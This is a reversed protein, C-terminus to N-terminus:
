QLLSLVQQPLGKAQALISMGAQMMIQNRTLETTEKAFDADQIRSRAASLNESTASLNSVTSQMRNQIAGLDARSADIGALAGDTIDIAAQAGAATTIDIADVTQKTSTQLEDAAGAFIGGRSDSVSSAVSFSTVESKYEVTGGVVTSDQNTGTANTLTLANGAGGTVDMTTTGSASSSFNEIDIDAGASDTLTIEDGVINLTAVVGTKSTQDNISTVLNSLDGTTVNASLSTGNLSFEVVGDNTVADITATTSATATVGSEDSVQNVLSAIDKATSNVDISVSGTGTGTMTLVQASVFNGATADSMAVSSTLTASTDAAVTFISGAGTAVDSEILYGSDLQITIDGVQVASDTGAAETVTSGAFSMTSAVNAVAAATTTQAAGASAGDDTLQAVSVTTTGGDGTVIDFTSDLLDAGDAAFATFAIATDNTGHVLTATAGNDTITITGGLVADAATKFNDVTTAADGAVSAFTFSNGDISMTINESVTSSITVDVDAPNGGGVTATSATVIGASAGDDTLTATTVTTGGHAATVDMTTDLSDGEDGLFNTIVIDTGDTKTITVNGAADDTVAYGAGLVADAAVGFNTATTTADGIVTSFTIAGGGDINVTIDEAVGTSINNVTISSNEQVAFDQVGINLGSASTITNSTADFTLDTDGNNGNITGIATTLEGELDTDFTAAAYQFSIAVTDEADGTTLTFSVTDGDFTNSLTNGFAASNTATATIGTQGSLSTALEGADRIGAMAVTNVTGDPDTISITQTTELETELAADVDAGALRVGFGTTSTAAQAVTAAVEIGFSTNNTSLKEIGLESTTAADVSVNVTQNANAGVQFSQSSFSGDLLKLGNFTTTEAIRDMESVLQNVESQLSLRDQASNTSNASQISLERIRQLINSSEDMAGEATQSLSIADNANRVAQDLGRIQSTFRNAIALGAADDKASNIRLGSSLRQLSDNLGMQSKNLNRQANLSPLNSNIVQPM